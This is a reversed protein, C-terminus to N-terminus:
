QRHQRILASFKLVGLEVEELLSKAPQGSWGQSQSGLAELLALLLPLAKLRFAKRVEGKKMM